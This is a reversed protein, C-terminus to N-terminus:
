RGLRAMLARAQEYGTQEEQPVQSYFDCKLCSGLKHAFTGQVRGGCLTGAVVWCARGANTGGHVGDLREEEAAPCTGLEVVRAGGPERGCGLVQWCNRKDAM